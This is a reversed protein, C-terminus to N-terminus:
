PHVRKVEFEEKSIKQIESNQLTVANGTTGDRLHLTGRDQYIDKTYYTKASTPDTVKYYSTTCGLLGM